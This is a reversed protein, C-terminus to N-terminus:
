SPPVRLVSVDLYGSSFFILIIGYTAALSRPPAWVLDQDPTTPGRFPLLVALLVANFPRGYLTCTGYSFAIHLRTTDQTRRSM